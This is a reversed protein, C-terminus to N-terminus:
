NGRWPYFEGSRTRDQARDRKEQDLKFELNFFFEVAGKRELFIVSFLWCRWEKRVRIEKETFEAKFPSLFTQNKYYVLTRLTGEFRLKRIPSWRASQRIEFAPDRSSFYSTGFSYYDEGLIKRGFTVESETNLAHASKTVPDSLIYQERFFIDVSDSPKISLEGNLPSYNKRELFDLTEGRAKPLNHTTDLRLSALGRWFNLVSLFGLSHAERGLDNARNNQLRQIFTHTLDLTWNHSLRQRLTSQEILRQRFNIQELAKPRDTWQNSITVKPVFTSWAPIIQFKRLLTLQQDSERRFDRPLIEGFFSQGAYHNTFNATIIKEVGWLGVLSQTQTWELRPGVADNAFFKRTQTNFLESRSGVGRFYNNKKQYTFSVSSTFDRVVRNFDERFFDNPFADDSLQNSNIQFILGEQIKQWHALRVNWREEKSIKDRIRYGYLSGKSKGGFYYDLEGGTGMGRLSFYDLYIKLYTEETLPYGLITRLFTGESQNQGPFLQLGLHKEGIPYYYYPFYLVPVPGLTFVAHLVTIRKGPLFNVRYGYLHYKSLDRECTALRAGKLRFNGNEDREANKAAFLWEDFSGTAETLRASGTETNYHISESNIENGLIDRFKVRGWAKLSKGPIDFQAKDSQFTYSSQRVTVSGSATIVQNTQGYELFDSSFHIPERSPEANLLAACLVAGIVFSCCRWIM